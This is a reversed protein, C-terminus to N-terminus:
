LAYYASKRVLMCYTLHTYVCMKTAWARPIRRASCIACLILVHHTLTFYSIRRDQSSSLVSDLSENTSLARTFTVMFIFSIWISNQTKHEGKETKTIYRYSVCLGIDQMDEYLIYQGVQIISITDKYSIHGTM